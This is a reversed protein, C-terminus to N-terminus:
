LLTKIDVAYLAVTEDYDYKAFDAYFYIYDCRDYYELIAGKLIACEADAYLVEAEDSVKGDEYRTVLM